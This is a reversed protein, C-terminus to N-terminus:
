KQFVVGRKWRSYEILTQQDDSGRSPRSWEGCAGADCLAKVELLGRFPFGGGVCVCVFGGM